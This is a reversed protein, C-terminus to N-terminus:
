YDYVASDPEPTPTTFIEFYTGDGLDQYYGEWDPDEGEAPRHKATEQPVPTVQVSGGEGARPLVITLILWNVGDQYRNPAYAYYARPVEGPEPIVTDAFSNDPKRQVRKLYSQPDRLAEKQSLAEGSVARLLVAALVPFRLLESVRLELTEVRGASLTATLEVGEPVDANEAETIGLVALTPWCEFLSNFPREGNEQLLQTVREMLAQLERQGETSERPWTIAQAGSVLLLLAMLLALTRRLRM